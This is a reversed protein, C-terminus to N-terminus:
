QRAMALNLREEPSILHDHDDTGVDIQVWNVDGNFENDGIAYDPSVMTGFERGVDVGEDTLVCPFRKRWGDKVTIATSTSSSAAARESAAKTRSL